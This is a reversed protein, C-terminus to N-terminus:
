ENIEKELLLEMEFIAQKYNYIAQIHDLSKKSALAEAILLDTTKELGQEFRNTRIRLSEEAQERALESSQIQQYTLELKRQARNLQIQSQSLYNQYNIQAERVQSTARQVSGVNKYGSFLNWSLSAGVFYNNASTGLIERDNWEYSGFANLKPIFKLKESRLMNETAEVQKQVAKLDSRSELQHPISNLSLLVPSGPMSDTPEITTGLDVGILHALFENATRLQNNAERLQNRREELRVSAELVDAHKVFGQEENDKTLKLAEEAVNVSEKLVDVAAQALELGFYAKKVEYSIQHRTRDAQLSVAEYQNRAAKRAYLGDVNLIPQQVEIKTTFNEINDPDNLVAPNFDAQTVVEQKLKFGFSSLPDNTSVGTHSVSVGPLFLSNTMRYAGRAADKRAIASQSTLNNAEALELAEKLSLQRAQSRGLLPLAFSLILVYIHLKKQM